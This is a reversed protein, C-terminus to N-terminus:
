GLVIQPRKEQPFLNMFVFYSANCIFFYFTCRYHVHVLRSHDLYTCKTKVNGLLFTLAYPPHRPESSRHLVYDPQSLNRPPALCGKIRFNGFSSVGHSYHWTIGCPFRVRHLSVDWYDSSFLSFLYKTLLPSRFRLLGFRKYCYLRPQLAVIDIILLTVFRTNLLLAQFPVGYITIAWYKFFM